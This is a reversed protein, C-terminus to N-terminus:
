NHNFHDMGPTPIYILSRKKLFFGQRRKRRGENEEQRLHVIKCNARSLVVKM